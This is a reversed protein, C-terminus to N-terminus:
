NNQVFKDWERMEIQLDEIIKLKELDGEKAFQRIKESILVGKRAINYAGNADGNFEKGQFGKDSHFGCSPCAIFDRDEVNHSNRLKLLTNIIFMLQKYFNAELKEALIQEMIDGQLDIKDEFLKELEVKADFKITEWGKNNKSRVNILREVDSSFILKDALEKELFLENKNKTKKKNEQSALCEFNFNGGDYVIKFQHDTLLKKAQEINKFLFGYLRKRFGCVSCIASTFSAPVYFIIGTQKKIDQFNQIPPTLQLAELYNEKVKSVLYNLKKALALEFKQYVQKEIKFRGRKFGINLDEFIIIPLVEEELYSFILKNIENVVQSIYGQKLEKINEIEQWSERADARDKEKKDLLQHYDDPEKKNPVEIKNFSKTELVKGNEDIVSVYLLHKEGRDIGIIRQKTQSIIFQNVKFNIQKNKLGANFVIPLHFLIKDESYRKKEIAKDGKNLLIKNKKTQIEKKDDLSKPRYFIEGGGSLKLALGQNNYLNQEDFLLEFYRTHLNSKGKEGKSILDKNVIQFFYFNKQTLDDVYKKSVKKTFSINYLVLDGLVKAFDNATEYNQKLIEKLQPYHKEQKQLIVKVRSILEQDSLIKKDTKYDTKYEGKYLSGYITTSKLQNYEMLEYFGDEINFAEEKNLNFTSASSMIGLYYQGGQRFISSYYQLNGDENASWGMLLTGKEFNLKIKDEKYPKKTLYNRFENFYLWVKDDEAWENFENYFNADEDLDNVSNKGKKLEFYRMMQSVSLASESFDKILEKQLEGKKCNKLVGKKNTYKKDEEIMKKVDIISSNCIDLSKNWEYQWISIFNEFANKNEFVVKLEFYEKKFLLKQDKPLEPNDFAQKIQNISVFDAVKNHNGRNKPLLSGFISWNLFWKNSITNINNGKIFVKDLLYENQKEIFKNFILEAKLNNEKVEKLFNNLIEFVQEDNKIIFEDQETGQKNKETLIQKFLEKLFPLKEKTKQRYENIKSKLRAVQNNYKEIGVQTLCQNFYTLSFIIKEEESLDLVGYKDQFIKRNDLFKTLNDDIIRTPIAGAIGEDKYFNQRSHHFNIFYTSFRKSFCDFITETEGTELNIIKAGEEEGYKKILLGFIEKKFFLDIGSIKKIKKQLKEDSVIKSYEDRWVIAITTFNDKIKTRLKKVYDNWAKFNKQNKEQKYALYLNEYEQYDNEEFSMKELAENIFECHLCDFYKKARLYNERVLIDKEFIYNKSLLDKTGGIPKLEFRLTKSLEYLGTFKEFTEKNQM